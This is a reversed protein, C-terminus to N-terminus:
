SPGPAGASDRHVDEWSWGDSQLLAALRRRQAYLSIEEAPVLAEDGVPLGKERFRAADAPPPDAVAPEIHMYDLAELFSAIAICAQRLAFDSPRQEPPVREVLVLVTESLSALQVTLANSRDPAHFYHLAPYALHQQGQTIISPALQGLPGDLDFREGNWSNCLMDAPSGGATSIQIALSRKETAASVIPVLYTVALTLALLGNGACLVTFVM